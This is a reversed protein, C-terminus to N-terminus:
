LEDKERDEEEEEEEEYDEEEEEKKEKKEEARKKAEEDAKKKAEEDAAEKAAKEGVITKGTTEDFFAKAEALSDTVIINDFITGSKVQWLDFGVVGSEFSYIEADHKYDPNDIEPHVWVGQYSPNEIQKARWEGKHSPNNVKPPVWDGDM